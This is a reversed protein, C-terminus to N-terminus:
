RRRARQACGPAHFAVWVPAPLLVTIEFGHSREVVKLAAISQRLMDRGGGWHALGFGLWGIKM